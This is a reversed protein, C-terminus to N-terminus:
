NRVFLEKCMQRRLGPVNVREAWFDTTNKVVKATEAATETATETATEATAIGLKEKLVAFRDQIKQDLGPARKAVKDSVKLYLEHTAVVSKSFSDIALTNVKARYRSWAEKLVTNREEPSKKALAQLDRYASATRARMGTVADVIARNKARFKKLVEQGEDTALFKTPSLFRRPSEALILDRLLELDGDQKDHKVSGSSAFTQLMKVAGEFGYAHERAALPELGGILRISKFKEAIEPNTDVLNSLSLVESLVEDGGGFVSAEIAGSRPALGKVLDDIHSWSRPTLLTFDLGRTLNDLSRPTEAHFNTQLAIFLTDAAPLKGENRLKQLAESMLGGFGDEQGLVLFVHKGNPADSVVKLLRKEIEKQAKEKNKFGWRYGFELHLRFPADAFQSKVLNELEQPDSSVHRLVRSAMETRLGNRAERAADYESQAAEVAELLGKTEPGEPLEAVDDGEQQQFIKARSLAQQKLETLKAQGAEARAKNLNQKALTLVEDAAAIREENQQLKEYLADASRQRQWLPLELQKADKLGAEMRVRAEKSGDAFHDEEFVIEPVTQGFAAVPGQLAITAAVAALLLKESFLKM